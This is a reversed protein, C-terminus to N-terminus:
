ISGMCELPDIIFRLEILLEQSQFLYLVLALNELISNIVDAIDNDEM